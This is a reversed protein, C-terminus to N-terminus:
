RLLFRQGLQSAFRQDLTSGSDRAAVLVTSSEVYPLLGSSVTLENFAINAAM